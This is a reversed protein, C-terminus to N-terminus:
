RQRGSLEFTLGCLAGRRGLGRFCRGRRLCGFVDHQDFGRLARCHAAAARSTGTTASPLHIHLTLAPKFGALGFVRHRRRLRRGSRLQCPPKPDLWHFHRKAEAADAQSQLLACLAMCPQQPGRLRPTGRSSKGAREPCGLILTMFEGFQPLGEGTRGLGESLRLAM